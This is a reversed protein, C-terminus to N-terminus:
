GASGVLSLLQHAYLTTSAAEAAAHRVDSAYSLRRVNGDRTEWASLCVDDAGCLRMWAFLCVSPCDSSGFHNGINCLTYRQIRVYAASLTAHVATVRRESRHPKEKVHDFKLPGVISLFLACKGSTHHPSLAIM